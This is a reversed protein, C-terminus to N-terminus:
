VINFQFFFVTESVRLNTVRAGGKLTVGTFDSTGPYIQIGGVDTQSSFIQFDSNNETANRVDVNHM